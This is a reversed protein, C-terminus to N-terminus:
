RNLWFKELICSKKVTETVVSGKLDEQVTRSPSDISQKKAQQTKMRSVRVKLQNIQRQQEKVKQELKIKENQCRIRNQRAIRKGMSVRSTSSHPTCMESSIKLLKNEAINNKEFTSSGSLPTSLKPQINQFNEGIAPLYINVTPSNPPTTAEIFDEAQRQIKKKDRYKKSRIKWDKRIARQSRTSLDGICKIEGRKKKQKYEIRRLNKAQAYKEPDNYLKERAKRMSDRKQKRRRTIKEEESLKKTRAMDIAPFIYIIM